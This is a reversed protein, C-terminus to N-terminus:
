RPVDEQDVRYSPTCIGSRRSVRHRCPPRDKGDMLDLRGLTKRTGAAPSLLSKAPMPTERVWGKRPCATKLVTRRMKFAVAHGVVTPVPSAKRRDRHQWLPRLLLREMSHCKKFRKKACNSGKSGRYSPLLARNGQSCPPKRVM